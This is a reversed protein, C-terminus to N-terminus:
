AYLAERLDFGFVIAVSEDLNDQEPINKYSSETDNGGNTYSLIAKLFSSNEEIAMDVVAEKITEIIELVDKCKIELYRAIQRPSYNECLMELIVMNIKTNLHHNELYNYLTDKLGEYELEEDLTFVGDDTDYDYIPANGQLKDLRAYLRDLEAEYKKQLKEDSVNRGELYEIRDKITDIELKLNGLNYQTNERIYDLMSNGEADCEGVERNSHLTHTKGANILARAFLNSIYGELTVEREQYFGSFRSFNQKLHKCFVQLFAETLLNYAIDNDLAGIYKRGLKAYLASYDYEPNVLHAKGVKALQQITGLHFERYYLNSM